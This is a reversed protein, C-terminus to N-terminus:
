MSASPLIASREGRRDCQRAAVAPGAFDLIPYDDLVRDVARTGLGPVMRLLGDERRIRRSWQFENRSFAVGAFAPMYYRGIRTGVVEQIMIGMEEHFDILGREMRYGIPDPGFTSAYVEAIADMLAAIREQKSGQNAIFLSKYKGAFSTGKSDELLSSSRVILRSRRLIM